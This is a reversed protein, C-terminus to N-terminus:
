SIEDTKKALIQHSIALFWSKGLMKDLRDLILNPLIRWLIPPVSYGSIHESIEYNYKKLAKELDVPSLADRRRSPFLRPLWAMNNGDIIALCCEDATHKLISKLVVWSPQMMNLSFMSYIGDIPGISAYNFEFVNSNYVEINMSLGSEKEYYNKRKKLISLPRHDRDIGIVNAGLSAFFLTQTGFGCGLDLIKPNRQVSFLHNVARAM